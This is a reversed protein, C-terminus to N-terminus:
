SLQKACGNALRYIGACAPAESETPMTADPICRVDVVSENSMNVEVVVEMCWCWKNDRGSLIHFKAIQREDFCFWTM